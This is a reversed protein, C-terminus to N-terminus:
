HVNIQEKINRIMNSLEIGFFYISADRVDARIRDKSGELTRSVFRTKGQDHNTPIGNRWIANQIMYALQVESKGTVAMGKVRIWAILAGIPVRKGGPKRGWDVYKAIDKGRGEISFGTANQVVVVKISDRLKGTAIHGQKELEAKIEKELFECLPQLKKLIDNEM